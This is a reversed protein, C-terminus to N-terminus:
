AVSSSPMVLYDVQHVSVQLLPMDSAHAGVDSCRFLRANRGVGLSVELEKWVVFRGVGQRVRVVMVLDGATVVLHLEHVSCALDIGVSCGCQVSYADTQWLGWAVSVDNGDVSGVTVVRARGSLHNENLPDVSRVDRRGPSHELCPADDLSCLLAVVANFALTVWVLTVLKM